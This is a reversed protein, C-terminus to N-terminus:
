CDPSRVQWSASPAPCPSFFQGVVLSGLEGGLPGGGLIFGFFCMPVFGIGIFTLTGIGGGTLALYATPDGPKTRSRHHLWVLIATTAGAAAAILIGGLLLMMWVDSSASFMAAADTAGLHARRDAVLWAAATVPLLTSIACASAIARRLQEAAVIEDGANGSFAL